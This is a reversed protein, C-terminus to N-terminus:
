SSDVDVSWKGVDILEFALAPLINNWYVKLKLHKDHKYDYFEM